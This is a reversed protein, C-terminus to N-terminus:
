TTTITSTLATSSISLSGASDTQGGASITFAPTTVSISSANISPPSSAYTYAGFTGTLGGSAPIKWSLCGTDKGGAGAIAGGSVAVGRPQKYNGGTLRRSFVLAGSTDICVINPYNGTSDGCSMILNGSADVEIGGYCLLSPIENKWQVTGSSNFKVLITKNNAADIGAVFVNGSSDLAIGKASCVVSSTGIQRQWSVTGGQDAKIVLTNDVTNPLTVCGHVRPYSDAKVASKSDGLPPNTAALVPVRRNSIITGSNNYFAYVYDMQGAGNDSYGGIAVDGTPAVTLTDLYSNRSAYYLARQWTIAGASDLKLIVWTYYSGNYHTTGIYINGSDDVAISKGYGNVSAANIKKQWSLAGAKSYLAVVMNNYSATVTDSTGVVAMGGDPMLAAGTWLENAGSGLQAIWSYEVGGLAAIAQNLASM